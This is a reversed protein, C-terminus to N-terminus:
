QEVAMRRGSSTAPGLLVCNAGDADCFFAATSEGAYTDADVRILLNVKFVGPQQTIPNFAFKEFTCAFTHNGTKVWAGQGVGGEPTAPNLDSQVLGGGRSFTLRSEFTRGDPIDPNPAITVTERWTGELEPATTAGAKAKGSRTQAGVPAAALAAIVTVMLLLGLTVAARYVQKEM